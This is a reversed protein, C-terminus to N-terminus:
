YRKQIKKFIKTACKRVFARCQSNARKKNKAEKKNYVFTTRFKYISTVIFNKRAVCKGKKNM